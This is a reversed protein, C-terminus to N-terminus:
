RLFRDARSLAAAWLIISACSSVSLFSAFHCGVRGLEEVVLVHELQVRELEGAIAAGVANAIAPQELRRERLRLCGEIAREDM